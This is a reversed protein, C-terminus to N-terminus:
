SLTPASSTNSDMIDYEPRVFVRVSKKGHWFSPNYLASEGPKFVEPPQGNIVFVPSVRVFGHHM